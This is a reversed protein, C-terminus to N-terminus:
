MAGTLQKNTAVRLCVEKPYCQSMRSAVRNPAIEILVAAALTLDIIYNAEQAQM